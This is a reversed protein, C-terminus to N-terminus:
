KISKHHQANFTNIYFINNNIKLFLSISIIIEILKILYFTVLIM